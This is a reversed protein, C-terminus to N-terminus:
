DGLEALLDRGLAPQHDAGAQVRGQLKGGFAYQAVPQDRVIAPM